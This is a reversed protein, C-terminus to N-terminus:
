LLLVTRVVAHIGSSLIGGPLSSRLRSGTASARARARDASRSIVYKNDGSNNNDGSDRAARLNHLLSYFSKFFLPQPPFSFLNKRPAPSMASHLSGEPARTGTPRLANRWSHHRRCSCVLSYTYLIIYYQTGSHTRLTRTRTYIIYNDYPNHGRSLDAPHLRTVALAGARPRGRFRQQCVTPSNRYLSVCLYVGHIGATTTRGRLTIIINM